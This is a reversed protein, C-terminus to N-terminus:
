ACSTERWGTGARGAGGLPVPDARGAGLSRNQVSVGRSMEPTWCNGCGLIAVGPGM